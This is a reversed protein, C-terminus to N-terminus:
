DLLFLSTVVFGNLWLKHFCVSLFWVYPSFSRSLSVKAEPFKNYMLAPMEGWAAGATMFVVGAAQGLSM